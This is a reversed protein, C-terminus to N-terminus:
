SVTYVVNEDTWSVIRDNDLIPTKLFFNSKLCPTTMSYAKTELWVYM